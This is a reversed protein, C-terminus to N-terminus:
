EGEGELLAQAVDDLIQRAALINRGVTWAEANVEYIRGQEVAKLQSWIPDSAFEQRNLSDALEQNHILFIVDGDLSDLDERSVMKAWRRANTQIAPRNFGLDQLISGAFSNATYFGVRGQGTIVVSVVIEGTDGLEQKLQGVQQEYNQLLERATDSRGLADAYLRLNSQWNGSRGSGESLITPAIRSLRRYIGGLNIKTGLILDPQLQAIKELNPQSLDGVSEIGAIRDGLYDPFDGHVTSGVPKIGLALAADLAATDGTVLREITEPVDTVGMAHEIARGDPSPSEVRASGDCSALFCLLLGSAIAATPFRNRPKPSRGFWVIAGLASSVLWLFLVIGRTIASEM